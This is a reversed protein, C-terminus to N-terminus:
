RLSFDIWYESTGSMFFRARAGAQRDTGSGIELGMVQPYWAGGTLIRQPVSWFRPDDLVPAFSVYVGEQGFQEDKTRNLLMVYHQLSSNWHVSAGWFADNVPNADHWRQTVPVLPTGGPYSFQTVTMGGGTATRIPFPRQWRGDIWVEVRGSPRDRNAWVMRAVSVGQAAARSYQSFFFYLDTKQHNLAVGVDGVGGVFYKNPTACDSGGFPAELIIGLDEWTRGRDFSRAAGIRPMVRDPRGCFQAPIENHYYGYWTGADDAVVAEMWVGHGPHSTFSVPTATGLTSVQRGTALSPHGAVSTMVHLTQVGNVLDWVAPSNSDVSGTLRLTPAKQLMAGPLRLAQAWTSSTAMAVVAAAAVLV